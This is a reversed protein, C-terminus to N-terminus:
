EPPPVPDRGTRVWDKQPRVAYAAFIPLRSIIYFPASWLARALNKDGFRLLVGGFSIAMLAGGAAAVISPLWGLGLM